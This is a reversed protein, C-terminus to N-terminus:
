SNEPQSSTLLSKITALSTLEEPTMFVNSWPDTWPPQHTWYITFKPQDDGDFFLKHGGKHTIVIKFFGNMFSKYSAVFLQFLNRDIECILSVWGKEVNSRTKYHYIFLTSTPILDLAKCLINCAQWLINFLTPQMTACMQIYNPPPSM